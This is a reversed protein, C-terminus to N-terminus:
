SRARAGVGVGAEVPHGAHDLRALVGTEQGPAHHDQGALVDPQGIGLREEHGLGGGPGDLVDPQGLRREVQGFRHDVQGPRGLGVGHRHRQPPGLGVHAGATLWSTGAVQAVGVVLPRGGEAVALAVDVRVVVGRPDTELLITRVRELAPHVVLRCGAVASPVPPVLLSASEHLRTMPLGRQERRTAPRRRARRRHARGRRRRAAPAAGAGCAARTMAAAPRASAGPRVDPLEPGRRGALHEVEVHDEGPLVRGPQRLRDRGHRRGPRGVVAVVQGRRLVRGLEARARGLHRLHGRHQAALPQGDPRRRGAAGQQRHAARGAHDRRREPRRELRDLRRVLGPDSTLVAGGCTGAENAPATM